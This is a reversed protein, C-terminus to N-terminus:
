RFRYNGSGDNTNEYNIIKAEAEDPIVAAVALSLFACLIFVSKM